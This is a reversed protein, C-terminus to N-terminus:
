FINLCVIKTRSNLSTELQSDFQSLDDIALGEPMHAQGFCLLQFADYGKKLLAQDKLSPFVCTEHAESLM